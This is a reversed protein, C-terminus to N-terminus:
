PEKKIWEERFKKIGPLEDSNYPYYNPFDVYINRKRKEMKEM